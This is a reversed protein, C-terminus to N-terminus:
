PPAYNPDGNARERDVLAQCEAKYFICVLRSFPFPHPLTWGPPPEQVPYIKYPHDAPDDNRAFRHPWPILVHEAFGDTYVFDCDMYHWVTAGRYWTQTPRCQGQASTLDGRSGAMVLQYRKMTTAPRRRQQPVDTLARQAQAITKSFQADLAAIQQSTFARSARSRAAGGSPATSTSPATSAPETHQAVARPPAATAGPLPHHLTGHRPRYTPVATPETTPVGLAPPPLTPVAVPLRRPQPQAQAAAIRQPRPRQPRARPRQPPTRRQARPVTRKEITIADSTAVFEPPTPSPHPLLKAIAPAVHRAFLLWAGGGVAHVLLSLALAVALTNRRREERAPFLQV